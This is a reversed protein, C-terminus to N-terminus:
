VTQRDKQATKLRNGRQGDRMIGLPVGTERTIQCLSFGEQIFHGPFADQSGQSFLVFPGDRQATRQATTASTPQPFTAPCNTGVGKDQAAWPCNTGVGKDQAAWPCNTGVRKDQGGSNRRNGQTGFRLTMKHCICLNQVIEEPDHISPLSAMEYFRLEFPQPFSVKFVLATLITCFRHM